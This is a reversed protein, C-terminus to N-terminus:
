AIFSSFALFFASFSLLFLHTDERKWWSVPEEFRVYIERPPPLMRRFPHGAGENRCVLKRKMM